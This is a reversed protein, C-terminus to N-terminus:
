IMTAGNTDFVTLTIGELAVVDILIDLPARHRHATTGLARTGFLEQKDSLLGVFSNLLRLSATDPKTM